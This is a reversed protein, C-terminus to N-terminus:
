TIVKRPQHRLLPHSDKPAGLQKSSGLLEVTANQQLEAPRGGAQDAHSGGRSSNPSDPV